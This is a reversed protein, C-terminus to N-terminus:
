EAGRQCKDGLEILNGIRICENTNQRSSDLRKAAHLPVSGAALEDLEELEPIPPAEEPVEDFLPLAELELELLELEPFDDLELEPM